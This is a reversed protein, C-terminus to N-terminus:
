NARVQRGALPFRGDHLARNMSGHSSLSGFLWIGDCGRVFVKNGARFDIQITTRAAMARRSFWIWFSALLEERANWLEGFDTGSECFSLNKPYGLVSNAARTHKRISEPVRVFLHPAGSGVDIADLRKRGRHLRRDILKGSGM